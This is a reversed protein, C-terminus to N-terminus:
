EGPFLQSLNKYLPLQDGGLLQIFDQFGLVPFSPTQSFDQDFFSENTQIFEQIDEASLEINGQCVELGPLDMGLAQGKNRLVEGAFGGDERQLNFIISEHYSHGERIVQAGDSINGGAGALLDLRNQSRRCVNMVGYVEIVPGALLYLLAKLLQGNRGGEFIFRVQFEGGFGRYGLAKVQDELLRDPVPSRINMNLGLLIFQADPESYVTDQMVGERQIHASV